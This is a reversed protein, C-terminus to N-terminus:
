REQVAAHEADQAWRRLAAVANHMRSRVTGVPIRLTEAIEVYSLGHALRLELVERQADPLKVIAERMAELRHDEHPPAFAPSADCDPTWPRHKKRRLHDRLLNRAIGVLWARKSIAADLGAPDAMAALFAEQLIEEAAHLDAIRRRLYSWVVPGVDLYLRELDMEHGSMVEM